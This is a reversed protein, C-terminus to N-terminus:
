KDEESEGRKEAAGRVELIKRKQETTAKTLTCFNFTSLIEAAKVGNDHIPIEYFAHCPQLSQDRLAEFFTHLKACAEEEAGDITARYWNRREKAGTEPEANYRFRYIFEWHTLEAEHRWLAGLCDLHRFGLFWIVSFYRDPNFEIM